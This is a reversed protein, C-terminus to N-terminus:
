EGKNTPSPVFDKAAKVKSDAETEPEKAELTADDSMELEETSASQTNTRNSPFDPRSATNLVEWPKPYYYTKCVPPMHHRAYNGACYNEQWSMAELSTRSINYAIWGGVFSPRNYQARYATHHDYIPRPLIDPRPDSTKLLTPREGASVISSTLICVSFGLLQLTRM